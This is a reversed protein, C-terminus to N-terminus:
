TVKYLSNSVSNGYIVRVIFSWLKKWRSVMAGTKQKSQNNGTQDGQNKLNIRGTKKFCEKNWTRVQCKWKGNISALFVCCFAFNPSNLMSNTVCIFCFLGPIFHNFWVHTSNVHRAGVKPYVNTLLFFTYEVWRYLQTQFKDMGSNSHLRLEELMNHLNSIPKFLGCCYEQNSAKRYYGNM